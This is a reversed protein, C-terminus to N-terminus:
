TPRQQGHYGPATPTVRGRNGPSGPHSARALAKLFDGYTRVGLPNIKIGRKHLLDQTRRSLHGDFALDLAASVLLQSKIQKVGKVGPVTKTVALGTKPDIRKKGTVPDYVPIEKDPIDDAGQLLLTAAKQRTIGPSDAILSKAETFAVGLTDSAAAQQTPTAWKKTNKAKPDLRGGPIPAYGGGPLPKDPDQGSSRISNRESQTLDRTQRAVDAAAKADAGLLDMITSSKFAGSERKLDRARDYIKGTDQAYERLIQGRAAGAGQVAAVRRDQLQSTALAESEGMRAQLASAEIGGGNVFAPTVQGAAGAYAQHVAPIASLAASVGADRANVAQRLRTDRTSQADRLLATLASIEPGFRVLSLDAAQQRYRRPTKAM